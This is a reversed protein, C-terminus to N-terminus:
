LTLFLVYNSIACNGHAEFYATQDLSLGAGAYTARIMDAHAEPSPM